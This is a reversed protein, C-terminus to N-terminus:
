KAGMQRGLQNSALVLWVVIMVFPYPNLNIFRDNFVTLVIIPLFRVFVLPEMKRIRLLCWVAYAWVLISVLGFEALSYMYFNHAGELGTREYYGFGQGFLPTDTFSDWAISWRETRGVFGTGLGRNPDDMMFWSTLMSLIVDRAPEICLLVPTSVAGGIAAFMANKRNKIAWQCTRVFIALLLVLLAARGQMLGVAIVCPIAAVMFRRMEFSMGSAVFAIAIIESGLNPHSGGFFLYRGYVVEIQGMMAMLDYVVAVVLGAYAVSRLYAPMADHRLAALTLTLHFIFGTAALWVSLDANSVMCSVTLFAAFASLALFHFSVTSRGPFRLLAVFMLKLGLTLAYWVAVEVGLLYSFSVSLDLAGIVVAGVHAPNRVVFLGASREPHLAIHANEASSM